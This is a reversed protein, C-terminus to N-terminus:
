NLARIFQTDVGAFLNNSKPLKFGTQSLSALFYKIGRFDYSQTRLWDAYFMPYFGPTALWAGNFAGYGPGYVWDRYELGNVSLIEAFTLNSGDFIAFSIGLPTNPPSVSHLFALLSPSGDREINLYMQGNTTYGTTENIIPYTNFTFVGNTNKSLVALTAPNGFDNLGALANDSCAKLRVSSNLAAMLASDTVPILNTGNDFVDMSQNVGALYVTRGFIFSRALAASATLGLTLSTVVGGAECIIKTVVYAVRNYLLIVVKGEVKTIGINAANAINNTWAVTPTTSACNYLAVSTDNVNLLVYPIDDIFFAAMPSSSNTTVLKYYTPSSVVGTLPDVNGRVIDLQSATGAAVIFKSNTENMATVTYAGIIYRDEVSSLVGTSYDLLAGFRHQIAEFLKPYASVLVERGDCTLFKGQSAIEQNVASVKIDGIPFAQTNIAAAVGAPTAWMEDSIGQQMDAVSAKDAIKVRQQIQYLLNAVVDDTLEEQLNAFWEEFEFEWQAFLVSISTTDIIGTVFPTEDTGVVNQIDGATIQTVNPGVLVYALAWQNLTDSRVMAPKVPSSALNGVVLTIKNLRHNDDTNIELVVAYYRSLTVDAQPIQVPFIADNYNWTKNLWARGPGVFVQMGDGPTVAFHDAISAYVGNGILGDFLDGFQKSNYMRDHEFSNYFGFSFAM